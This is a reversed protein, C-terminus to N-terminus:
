IRLAKEIARLVKQQNAERLTDLHQRIEARNNWAAELAQLLAGPRPAAATLAAALGAQALLADVKPDYSIGVPPVGMRAAFILSHLRMGVVLKFFGTAGLLVAPPCACNAIQARASMRKAVEAAAERDGPNQMPAFVAEAGHRRLFESLDAAIIDWLGSTQAATKGPLPRLFVGINPKELHVGEAQMLAEIMEKPAPDLLWVADASINISSQPLGMEMLLKASAEDRVDIFDLRRLTKAVIKKLWGRRLPGIGQCLAVTRLRKRKALRLLFLYYLPSRWSTTDQLLGGGGSVFIDARSLERWIASLSYRPIAEVGYADKAAEPDASLIVLRCEPSLKRFGGILAALIAEDGANGYGYYGSIIIRQANLTSRQASM